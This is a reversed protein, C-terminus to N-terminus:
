IAWHLKSSRSKLLGGTEVDQTVPSGMLVGLEHLLRPTHSDLKGFLKNLTTTTM